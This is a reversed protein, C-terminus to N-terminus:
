ANREGKGRNQLRKGHREKRTKKLGTQELTFSELPVVYQPRPDKVYQSVELWKVRSIFWVQGTTKERVECGELTEDQFTTRFHLHFGFGKYKRFYHKNLDVTRVWRNGQRQGYVKKDAM